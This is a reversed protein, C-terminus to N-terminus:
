SENPPEGKRKKKFEKQKSKVLERLEHFEVGDILSTTYKQRKLHREFSLLMSRLTAPEYNDGNPKRISLFYKSLIRGLEPPPIEDIERTENIQTTLFEQM